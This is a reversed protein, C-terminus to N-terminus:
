KILENVIKELKKNFNANNSKMGHQMESVIEEIFPNLAFTEKVLKIGQEKLKYTELLIQVLELLNKNSVKMNDLAFKQKESIEGFKNALFLPCRPTGM